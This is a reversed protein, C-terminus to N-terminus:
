KEAARKAPGLDSLIIRNERATVTLRFSDCSLTANGDAEVKWFRPLNLNSSITEGFELSSAWKIGNDYIAYVSVAKDQDFEVSLYFLDDFHARRFSANRNPVVTVRSGSLDLRQLEDEPPAEKFFSLTVPGRSSPTGFREIVADPSMGLSIGQIAPSSSLPLSCKGRPQAPVAVSLLAAAVALSFVHMLYKM